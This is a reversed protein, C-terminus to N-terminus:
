VHRRSQEALIRKLAEKLVLLSVGKLETQYAMAYADYDMDKRMQFGGASFLRFTNAIDDNSAKVAIFRHLWLCAELANEENVRILKEWSNNMFFNIIRKENPKQKLNEM